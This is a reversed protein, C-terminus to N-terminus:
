RAAIYEKWSEGEDASEHRIRMRVVADHTGIRQLHCSHSLRVEAEFLKLQIDVAVLQSAGARGHFHFADGHLQQEEEELIGSFENASFDDVFPQPTVPDENFRLVANIRRNVLQSGGEAVVRSIRSEDPRDNPAAVAENRVYIYDLRSRRITGRHRDGFRLNVGVGGGAAISVEASRVETGRIDPFAWGRHRRM